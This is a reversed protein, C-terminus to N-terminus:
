CWGAWNSKKKKSSTKRSCPAVVRPPGAPAELTSVGGKPERGEDTRRRTEDVPKTPFVAPFSVPPSKFRPPPSLFRRFLLIFFQVPALDVTWSPRGLDVRFRFVVGPGLRIPGDKGM